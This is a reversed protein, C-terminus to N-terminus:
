EARSHANSATKLSIDRLYIWTYITTLILFHIFVSLFTRCNYNGRGVGDVFGYVANAASPTQRKEKSPSAVSVETESFVPDRAENGPGEVSPQLRPDLRELFDVEEDPLQTPSVNASSSPTPLQPIIDDRQRHPPSVPPLRIVLSYPSRNTHSEDLAGPLSNAIPPPKNALAGPFVGTELAPDGIL